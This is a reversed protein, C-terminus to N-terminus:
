LLIILSILGDAYKEELVRAEDFALERRILTRSGSSNNCRRAITPFLSPRAMLSVM